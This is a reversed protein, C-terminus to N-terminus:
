AESIKERGRGEAEDVGAQRDFAENPLGNERSSAVSFQATRRNGPTLLAAKGAIDLEGNSNWHQALLMSPGEALAQAFTKIVSQCM